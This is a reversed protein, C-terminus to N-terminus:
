IVASPLPADPDRMLAERAAQWPAEADAVQDRYAVITRLSTGFSPLQSDYLFTRLAVVDGAPESGIAYHGITSYNGSLYLLVQRRRFLDRQIAEAEKLLAPVAEREVAQVAEDIENAARHASRAANEQGEVCSPKAAQMANLRHSLAAEKAHTATSVEEMVGGHLAQRVAREAEEAMLSRLTELEVETERTMTELSTVAAQAAALDRLAKAKAEILEALAARGLTREKKMPLISKM